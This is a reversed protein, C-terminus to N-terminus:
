FTLGPINVNLGGTLKAAEERAMERVKAIGQNVAAIILDQLMAVDNPDVAEKDISLSVLDYNGNITVTVMGGGSSAECTRNALEEQMRAVDGQIKQAAQMLNDLDPLKFESM